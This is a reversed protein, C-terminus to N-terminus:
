ATHIDRIIQPQTLTLLDNNGKLDHPFEAFRNGRYGKETLKYSQIMTGMAGDLILIRQKLLSELLATRSAHM